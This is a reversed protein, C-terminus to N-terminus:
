EHQAGKDECKVFPCHECDKHECGKGKQKDKIISVAQMVVLTTCIIATIQIAM